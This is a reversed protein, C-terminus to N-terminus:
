SFPSWLARLLAHRTCDLRPKEGERATRHERRAWVCGSVGRDAESPGPVSVQPRCLTRRSQGIDVVGASIGQAGATAWLMLNALTDPLLGHSWPCLVRSTRHRFHYRSRSHEGPAVRPCGEQQVPPKQQMILRNQQLDTMLAQRYTRVVCCGRSSVRQPGHVRNRARKTRQGAAHESFLDTIRKEEREAEAGGTGRGSGTGRGTVNRHHAM